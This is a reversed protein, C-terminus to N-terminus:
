VSLGSTRRKSKWRRRLVGSSWLVIPDTWCNNSNTGQQNILNEILQLLAFLDWVSLSVLEKKGKRKRLKLALLSLLIPRLAYIAYIAGWLGASLVLSLVIISCLCFQHLPQSSCVFSLASSTRHQPPCCLEGALVSSLTATLLPCGGALLRQCQCPEQFSSIHSSLFLQTVETHALNGHSTWPIPLVPPPQVKWSRWPLDSMM